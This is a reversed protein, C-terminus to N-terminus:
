SLSAVGDRARAYSQTNYEGGKLTTLKLHAENAPDLELTDLVSDVGEPHNCILAMDCGARLAQKVRAAPEDRTKAGEMSLDDSFIVGSFGIQERLVTGLWHGSYSPLEEDIGPFQVHATMVAHLKSHLSRYPQLDETRIEAWPRQDCPVCSHSDEIVGGHGPFHKGTAKMGGDNMGEIFARALDTVASPHRHFARDGIVESGPRALDLVPAFSLDVGVQRLEVAMVCGADRAAVCGHEPNADYLTGYSGAAPLTTFGTRFRQVRGGEQDVAILLAPERLQKISAILSRLQTHDTYNRSFLIVGGVLPHALRDRDEPALETGGVDIFLPGLPQTSTNM